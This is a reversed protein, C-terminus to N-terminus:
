LEQGLLGGGLFLSPTGRQSLEKEPPGVRARKYPWTHSCPNQYWGELSKPFARDQLPAPHGTYYAFLSLGTYGASAM